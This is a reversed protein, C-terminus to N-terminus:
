KSKLPTSHRQAHITKFANMVAAMIEENWPATMQVYQKWEEHKKPSVYVMASKTAIKFDKSALRNCLEQANNFGLKVANIAIRAGEVILEPCNVSDGFLNQLYFRLKEKNQITNKRFENASIADYGKKYQGPFYNGPDPVPGFNDIGVIPLGVEVILSQKAEDISKKDKFFLKCVQFDKGLFNQARSTGSVVAYGSLGLAKTSTNTVLVLDDNQLKKADTFMLDNGISKEPSEFYLNAQDIIFLVSSHNQIFALLQNLDFQVDKKQQNPPYDLFVAGVDDQLRGGDKILRSLEGEIIQIPRFGKKNWLPLLYSVNDIAIKTKKTEQCHKKITPVIFKKFLQETTPGFAVPQLYDELYPKDASASKYLDLRSSLITHWLRSLDVDGELFTPIFIKPHPAVSLQYKADPYFGKRSIYLRDLAPTFNYRDVSIRPGEPRTM